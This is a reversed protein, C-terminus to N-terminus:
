ENKLIEQIKGKFYFVPFDDVKAHRYMKMGMKTYLKHAVEEEKRNGSYLRITDYGLKSMIKVTKLFIQNGYGNGRQSPIVGYWGLWIDGNLPYHGTIGVPKDGQTAVYYVFDDEKDNISLEYAVEPWFLGDHVEYPFIKRATNIARKLNKKTIKQLKM